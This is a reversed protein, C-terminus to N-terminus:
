LDDVLDSLYDGLDVDDDDLHDAREDLESATRRLVDAQCGALDFVACMPLLTTARLLWRTRRQM